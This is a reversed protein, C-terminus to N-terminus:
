RADPCVGGDPVLISGGGPLPCTNRGSPFPDTMLGIADCGGDVLPVVLLIGGEPLPAECETSNPSTNGETPFEAAGGCGGLVMAVAMVAVMAKM